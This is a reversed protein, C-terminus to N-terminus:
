FLVFLFELLKQHGCYGSLTHQARGEYGDFYDCLQLVSDFVSAFGHGQELEADSTEFENSVLEVKQAGRTEAGFCAQKVVHNPEHALSTPMTTIAMTSYFDRANLM